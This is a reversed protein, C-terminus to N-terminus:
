PDAKAKIHQEENWYYEIPSILSEVYTIVSIDNQYRLELIDQMSDNKPYYAVVGNHRVILALKGNNSMFLSRYFIYPRTIESNRIVFLSTWSDKRGYEKMVLIELRKDFEVCTMCLCDNLVGLGVIANDNKYLSHFKESIADFCIVEKRPGFLRHNQWKSEGSEEGDMPENDNDPNWRLHEDKYRGVLNEHMNFYNNDLNARSHLRGHMTIGDRASFMDCPCDIRRWKKDKLSAVLAYAGDTDCVSKNYVYFLVKYENKSSGFCLGGASIVHEDSTLLHLEIVKNCFRTAPNWLFIHKNASILVLGDCSGLLRLYPKSYKDKYIRSESLPNELTQFNFKDDEKPNILHFSGGNQNFIAKSSRRRQKSLDSEPNSIWSQWQKSVNKFRLLSRVPLKALIAITIENPLDPIRPNQAQLSRNRRQYQKM